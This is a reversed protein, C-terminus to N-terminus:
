KGFSYSFTTIPIKVINAGDRPQDLKYNARKWRRGDFIEVDDLYETDGGNIKAAGGMVALKGEVTSMTHGHQVRPFSMPPVSYWNNQGLVLKMVSHEEGLGGMVMVQPGLQPDRTVVTCQDRTARGM